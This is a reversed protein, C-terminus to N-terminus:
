TIIVSCLYARKLSFHTLTADKQRYQYQVGLFYNHNQTVQERAESESTHSVEAGEDRSAMRSMQYIEMCQFFKTDINEERDALKFFVQFRELQSSELVVNCQNRFLFGCCTFTATIFVTIICNYIFATIICTENSFSMKSLIYNHLSTIFGVIYLCPIIIFRYKHSLHRWQM